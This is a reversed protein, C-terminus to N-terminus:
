GPRAFPHWGCRRRRRRDMLPRCSLSRSVCVCGRARRLRRRPLSDGADITCLLASSALASSPPSSADADTAVSGEAAVAARVAGSEASEFVQLPSHNEVTPEGIPDIVSGEFGGRVIQERHAVRQEYGLRPNLAPPLLLVRKRGQLQLLLSDHQDFHLGTALSGDGLWLLAQQARMGSYLRTAADFGFPFSHGGGILPSLPASRLYAAHGRAPDELTALAADLRLERQAPQLVTGNPLVVPAVGHSSESLNVLRDTNQLVADSLWESPVGRQLANLLVPTASDLASPQTSSSAACPQASDRFAVTFEM